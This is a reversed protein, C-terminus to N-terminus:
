TWQDGAEMRKSILALLTDGGHGMEIDDDLDYHREPIVIFASGTECIKDARNL